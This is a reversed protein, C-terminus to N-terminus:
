LEPLIFRILNLFIVKSRLFIYAGVSAFKVKNRKHAKRMILICM